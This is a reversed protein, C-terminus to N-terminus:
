LGGLPVAVLSLPLPPGALKRQLSLLLLWLLRGPSPSFLASPTATCSSDAAQPGVRAWLPEARWVSPNLAHWCSEDSRELSGADGRSVEMPQLHPGFAPNARNCVRVRRLWRHALSSALQNTLWVRSSGNLRLRLGGSRRLASCSVEM